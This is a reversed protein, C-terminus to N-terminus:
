IFHRLEPYTIKCDLCQKTLRDALEQLSKCQLQMKVVTNIDMGLYANNFFGAHLDKTEVFLHYSQLAKKFYTESNNENFPFFRNNNKNEYRNYCYGLELNIRLSFFHGLAGFLDIARALIMDIFQIQEQSPLSNPSNKLLTVIEGSLGVYALPCDGRLGHMLSVPITMGDYFTTDQQKKSAKESFYEAMSELGSIQKNINERQNSSDYTLPYIIQFKFDQTDFKTFKEPLTNSWYQTLQQITKESYM